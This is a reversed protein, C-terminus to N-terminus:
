RLPPDKPKRRFLTLLVLFVVGLPILVPLLKKAAPIMLGILAAIGIAGSWHFKEGPRPLAYGLALVVIGVRLCAGQLAAREPFWVQVVVSAIVLIGGSVMMPIRKSGTPRSENNKLDRRENRM